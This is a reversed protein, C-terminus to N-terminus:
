SMRTGAAAGRIGLKAKYRQYEEKSMKMTDVKGQDGAKVSTASPQPPRAGSSGPVTGTTGTTAPVVVEGFLYAHGQRLGEFFKAEDVKGLDDESLNAHAREFLTIAYDTDKIGVHSAIRELEMRAQMAQVQREARRQKKRADAAAQEAREKAKQTEQWRRHDREYERMAQRNNRDRPPTPESNPTQGPQPQAQAPKPGAGTPKRAQLHQMMAAHNAYGLAQAQTDLEALMASRGRKEAKDLREKLARSPLHVLSGESRVTQSQAPQANPDPPTIPQPQPVPLQNEAPQPIIPDPM